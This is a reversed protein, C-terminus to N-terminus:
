DVMDMLQHMYDYLLMSYHENIHLGRSLLDNNWGLNEKIEWFLHTTMIPM